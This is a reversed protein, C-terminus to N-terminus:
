WLWLSISALNRLSLFSILVAGALHMKEGLPCAPYCLRGRARGANLFDFGNKFLGPIGAPYILLGSM